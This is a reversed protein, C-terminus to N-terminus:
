KTGPFKSWRSGMLYRVTRPDPARVSDLISTIQSSLSSPQSLEWRCTALVRARDTCGGAIGRHSAWGFTRVEGVGGAVYGGTM